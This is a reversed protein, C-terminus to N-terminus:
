SPWRFLARASKALVWEKDLESLTAAHRVYFLAQAWTYFGRAVATTDSGWIVRERGFAEIARALQVTVSEFPYLPDSFVRPGHVWKLALNPHQGAMALVDDFTCPAPPEPVGDPRGRLVEPPTIGALGCHDLIVTVDRFEELYHALLPAQGYSLLCVALNLRQAAVFCARYHGDALAAVLEPTRADLRIALAGPKAAFVELMSGLDPDDHNVRLLFAFRDPHMLAAMEAGPSTPRFGGNPVSHGPLTNGVTDPAWFEDIIVSSIGLADMASLAAPIDLARGNTGSGNFVHVQSDVIDMPPEIEFAPKPSTYRGSTLDDETHQEHQSV